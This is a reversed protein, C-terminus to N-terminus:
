KDENKEIKNVEVLSVANVLNNQVYDTCFNGYSM